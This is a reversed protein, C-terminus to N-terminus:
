RRTFFRDLGIIALVILLPIGVLGACELRIFFTSHATTQGRYVWDADFLGPPLHRNFYRGIPWCITSSVVFTCVALVVSHQRAYGDGFLLDLGAQVGFLSGFIVVFGLWGFGTWAMM